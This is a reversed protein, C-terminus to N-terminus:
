ITFSAVFATTPAHSLISHSQFLLVRILLWRSHSHWIFIAGSSCEKEQAYRMYGPVMMLGVLPWSVNMLGVLERDWQDLPSLVSSIIQIPKTHSSGQSTSGCGSPTLHLTSPQICSLFATYLDPSTGGEGKDVLPDTFGVLGFLLFAPAQSDSHTM